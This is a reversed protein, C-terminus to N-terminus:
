VAKKMSRSIAQLEDYEPGLEDQMWEHFDLPNRHAWMHDGFCLSVGNILMHRTSKRSRTFVHHAHLGQRDGWPFIRLCRRCTFGDREKVLDAWVRDDKSLKM